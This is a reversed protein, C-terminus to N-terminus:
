NLVPISEQPRATKSPQDEDDDAAMLRMEVNPVPNAPQLGQWAGAGWKSLRAMLNNAWESSFKVGQASTALNSHHADCPRSPVDEPSVICKFDKLQGRQKSRRRARRDARAQSLASSCQFTPQSLEHVACPEVCDRACFVRVSSEAAWTVQKRSTPKQTPMISSLEPDYRSEPIQGAEAEIRSIMDRLVAAILENSADAAYACPLRTAENFDKTKTGDAGKLNARSSPSKTHMNVHEEHKAQAAFREYLRGGRCSNRMRHMTTINVSPDCSLVSM